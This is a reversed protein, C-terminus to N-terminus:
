AKLIPTVVHFPEYLVLTCSPMCLKAMHLPTIYAFTDETNKHMSKSDSFNCATTSCTTKIIHLVHVHVALLLM